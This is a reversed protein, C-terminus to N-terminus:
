ESSKYLQCFVSVTGSLLLLDIEFNINETLM